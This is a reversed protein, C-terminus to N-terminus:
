RQWGLFIVEEGTGVSISRSEWYGYIALLGTGLFRSLSFLKWSGSIKEQDGDAGKERM